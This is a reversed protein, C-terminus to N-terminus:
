RLQLSLPINNQAYFEADFSTGLSVVTWTTGQQRAFVYAPDTTQAPPEVRLRAFGEAIRDIVVLSEPAANQTAYESVTKILVQENPNGLWITDPIGFESYFDPGFATGLGGLLTWQTANRRLFGWAPDVQSNRVVYVRAYDGELRQIAIQAPALDEPATTRVAAEIADNITNLATLPDNAGVAPVGSTPTSLQITYLQYEPLVGCSTIPQDAPCQVQPGPQWEVSAVLLQEDQRFGIVTGTPGDATYQPDRTWGQATLLTEIQQAVTAVDAFDKGTGEATLQCGPESTSTLMNQFPASTLAVNVKLIDTLLPQLTNCAVLGADPPVIVDEAIPTAIEPSPLAVPSPAGGMDGSGFAATPVAEPTPAVISPTAPMVTPVLTTIQASPTSTSPTGCAALGALLSLFVFCRQM